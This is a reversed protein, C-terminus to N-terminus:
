IVNEGKKEKKKGEKKIIKNSDCNKKLFLIDM